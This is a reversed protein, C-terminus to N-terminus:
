HSMLYSCICDYCNWILMSIFVGVKILIRVYTHIHTHKVKVLEAEVYHVKSNSLYKKKEM